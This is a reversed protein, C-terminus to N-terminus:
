RIKVYSSTSASASLGAPLTVIVAPLLMKQLKNM